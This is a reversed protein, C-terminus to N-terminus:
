FEVWTWSSRDMTCYFYFRLHFASEDLKLWNNERIFQAFIVRLQHYCWLIFFVFCNTGNWEIKSSSGNAIRMTRTLHIGFLKMLHIIRWQMAEEYWATTCLNVVEIRLQSHNCLCNKKWEDDDNTDDFTLLCCHFLFQLQFNFLFMRLLSRHRWWLMLRYTCLSQFTHIYIFTPICSGWWPM